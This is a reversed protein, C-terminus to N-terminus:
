CTRTAAATARVPSYRVTYLPNGKPDLQAKGEDDLVPIYETNM